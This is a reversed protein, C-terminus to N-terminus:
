FGDTVGTVGGLVFIVEVEGLLSALSNTNEESGPVSLVLVLLTYSLLHPPIIKLYHVLLKFLDDFVISVDLLDVCFELVDCVGQSVQIHKSIFDSLELLAHRRLDFGNVINNLKVLLGKSVELVVVEWSKHLRHFPLEDTFYGEVHVFDLAFYDGLFGQCSSQLLLSSPGYLLHNILELKYNFLLDRRFLLKDFSIVLSQAILLCDIERISIAEQM